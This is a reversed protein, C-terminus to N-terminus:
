RRLARWYMSRHCPKHRRSTPRSRRGPRRDSSATREQAVLPEADTKRIHKVSRSQEVERDSWRVFTGSCRPCPSNVRVGARAQSCVNCRFRTEETVLRLSVVQDSLQLLTANQSAGSLTSPALFNGRRLFTLIEVMMEATPEPGGFRDCLHRLITELSPSRGGAGPRRWANHCRIGAPMERADMFPLPNGANIRPIARLRPFGGNGNPM